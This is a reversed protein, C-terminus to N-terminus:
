APPFDSTRGMAFVFIKFSLASQTTVRQKTKSRVAVYATIRLHSSHAVVCNAETKLGILLQNPREFGTRWNMRISVSQVLWDFLHFGEVLPWRISM